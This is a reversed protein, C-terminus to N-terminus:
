SRRGDCGRRGGRARKNLMAENKKLWPGTGALKCIQRRFSNRHLSSRPHLSLPNHM